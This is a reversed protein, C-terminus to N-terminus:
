TVHLVQLPTVDPHVLDTLQALLPLGYGGGKELWVLDGNKHLQSTFIIASVQEMAHLLAAFSDVGQARGNTTEGIHDLGSVTFLCEWSNIGIDRPAFIRIIIAADDSDARSLVRLRRDAIAVSAQSM